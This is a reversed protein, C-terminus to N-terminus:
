KSRFQHVCVEGLSGSTKIIEILFDYFYYKININTKSENKLLKDITICKSDELTAVTSQWLQNIRKSAVSYHKIWLLIYSIYICM